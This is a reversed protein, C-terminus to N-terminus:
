HQSRWAEYLLVSGAIAVNLSEVGPQMPVQVWQTWSGALGAGENGLVILTPQQWNIQWLPQAIASMGTALVQVGATECTELWAEVDHVVQPPQRFWQGASARMVKPHYPDVSDDNLWIGDAGFAVASRILTGVNGPDQLTHLLVGLRQPVRLAQESPYAAVAVVGDPSTTTAIASLVAESVLNVECTLTAVLDPQASLWAETCWLSRLPWGTAIAEQILHTGELLFQQQQRRGKAQHLQRLAKVTPNKTSSIM